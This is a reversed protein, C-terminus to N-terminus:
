KNWTVPLKERCHMQTLKEYRCQTVFTHFVHLKVKKQKQFSTPHKHDTCTHKELPPVAKTTFFSHSIDTDPSKMQELNEYEIINLLM